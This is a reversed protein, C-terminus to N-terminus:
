TQLLAYAHAERERWREKKSSSTKIRQLQGHAQIQAETQELHVGGGEKDGEEM